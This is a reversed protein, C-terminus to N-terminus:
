RSRPITGVAVLVCDLVDVLVVVEVKEAPAERRGVGLVVEVLDTGGM